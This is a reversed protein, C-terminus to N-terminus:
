SSKFLTIETHRSVVESILIEFVLKEFQRTNIMADNRFFRKPELIKLNEYKRPVDM